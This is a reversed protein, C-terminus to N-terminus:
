SRWPSPQHVTILSVPTLEGWSCSGSGCSGPALPSAWASKHLSSYWRKLLFRKIFSPWDLGEPAQPGGRAIPTMVCLLQSCGGSSRTHWCIEMREKETQKSKRKQKKKKPKFGVVLWGAPGQSSEPPPIRTAWKSAQLPDVEHTAASQAESHLWVCPARALWGIIHIVGGEGGGGGGGGGEETERGGGELRSRILRRQLMWGARVREPEWGDGDSPCKVRTDATPLHPHLTCRLITQFSPKSHRIRIRRCACRGGARSHVLPGMILRVAAAFFGWGDSWCLRM